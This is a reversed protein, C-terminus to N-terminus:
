AVFLSQWSPDLYVWRPTYFWSTPLAPVHLLTHGSMCMLETGHWALFTRSAIGVQAPHSVHRLCIPCRKRQDAIVWWFGLISCALSFLLQVASAGSAYGSTGAYALDIPLIFAIGLVFAFKGIMFAHNPRLRFHSREDDRASSDFLSVITREFQIVFEGTLLSASESLSVSALAVQAILGVLVALLYVGWPGMSRDDFSAARLEEVDGNRDYAQVGIWGGWMQDWGNQRLKGIVFGEAGSSISAGSELLWADASGPMRWSGDQLVAVVRAQRNGVRITRGFIHPNSAFDSRWVQDSLIVQPSLDPTADGLEMPLGLLAFLNASAHAVSLPIGNRGADLTMREIRYFALGGFYRQQVSAWHRYEEIPISAETDSEANADRILVLRPRLSFRAPHLEATVSSSRLAVIWGAALVGLLMLLCFIASRHISVPKNLTAHAIRRVELADAFAGLCFRFAKSESEIFASGGACHRMHWLESHWERIWEERQALPTILSAARLLSRELYHVLQTSALTM